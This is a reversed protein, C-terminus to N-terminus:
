DYIYSYTSAQRLLIIYCGNNIGTPLQRDGYVYVLWIGLVLSIEPIWLLRLVMPPPMVM